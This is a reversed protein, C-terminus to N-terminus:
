TWGEIICRPVCEKCWLKSNPDYPYYCNKHNINVSSSDNDSINLKDLESEVQNENEKYNDKSM